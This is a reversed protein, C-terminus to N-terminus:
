NEKFILYNVWAAVIGFGLTLTITEEFESFNEGFLRHLGLQPFVLSTVIGRPEKIIQGILCYEIALRTRNEPM